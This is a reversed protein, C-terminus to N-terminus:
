RIGGKGDQERVIEDLEVIRKEHLSRTAGLSVLLSQYGNDADTFPKRRNVLCEYFEYHVGRNGNQNYPTVLAGTDSLEHTVCNRSDVFRQEIKNHGLRYGETELSGETGQVGMARVWTGIGYEHTHPAGAFMCLTLQARAGNDYEVTVFAHDAIDSKLGFIEKHVAADGSAYVRVPNADLFWNFVDFHHCSKDVLMGGGKSRDFVWRMTSPFPNRYESLWAMVPRGIAGAGILEAIKQLHKHYRM